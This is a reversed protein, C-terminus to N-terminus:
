DNIMLVNKKNNHKNFKIMLEGYFHYLHPLQGMLRTLSAHYLAIFNITHYRTQYISFNPPGVIDMWFWEYYSMFSYLEDGLRYDHVILNLIM